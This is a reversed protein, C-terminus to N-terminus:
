PQHLSRIQILKMSDNDCSYATSLINYAYNLVYMFLPGENNAKTYLYYNEMQNKCPM